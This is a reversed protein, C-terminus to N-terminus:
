AAALTKASTGAGAHAENFIGVAKEFANKEEGRYAHWIVLEAASAVGAWCLLIATGLLTLRRVLSRHRITGPAM